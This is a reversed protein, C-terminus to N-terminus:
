LTTSLRHIEPGHWLRTGTKSLHKLTEWFLEEAMDPNRNRNAHSLGNRSPPLARRITKLAGSHNHLDDCVDNLSLSHALQAHVLAVVHSWPTISRSKKDVGHKKALKSVLYTPILEVAQKLVPMTSKAPKV